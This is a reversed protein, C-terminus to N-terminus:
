AAIEERNILNETARPQLNQPLIKLRATLNVFIFEVFEAAREAAIERSEGRSRWFHFTERFLPKLISEKSVHDARARVRFSYDSEVARFFVLNKILGAPSREAALFGDGFSNDIDLMWVGPSVEVFGSTAALGGPLAAAVEASVLLNLIWDPAERARVLRIEEKSLATRLRRYSKRTLRCRDLFLEYALSNRQLTM